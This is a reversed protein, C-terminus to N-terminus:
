QYGADAVVCQPDQQRQWFHQKPVEKELWSLGATPLRYGEVLAIYKMRAGLGLGIPEPVHANLV